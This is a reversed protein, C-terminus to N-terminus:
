KENSIQNNSKQKSEILRYYDKLAINVADDWSLYLDDFAKNCVEKYKKTDSFIDMITNAYSEESNSSLYGNFNHNVADATAAEELFLTPTKQSAAEIQVLSSCDYLSPFLFLDSLSYLKAMIERNTIKGLLKVENKLKLEKILNKLQQEDPGSGVFLMKFKMGMDKVLKLSRVIFLINKLVTLRGVFLFVKEDKEIKYKERLEDKFSTDQINKLDTGNNHVYPLSNAGYEEHYIKAVNSNVAWCEDCANFVKMVKGLLVNSLWKWNHTEKLFDKKYQSHMTAVVPINHKKAYKVGMKGIGFPSHIHVIDLNSNKLTKKFKGSLRPLPLDYDLGYVPFMNCRVVKYPLKSDDHKKRTKTTFITVDAINCLRRAYNDVVMIVGDVMPFFTDIFFGIKLKKPEQDQENNKM